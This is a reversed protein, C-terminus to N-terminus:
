DLLLDSGAIGVEIIEKEVLDRIQEKEEETVESNVELKKESKGGILGAAVAAEIGKMGNTGPVVVSKVNKIINVSAKIQIVDPFAGLCERAFASAYA